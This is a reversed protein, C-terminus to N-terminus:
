TPTGLWEHMLKASEVYGEMINALIIEEAKRGFMPFDIHLSGSFTRRVRSPGLPEVKFVGSMKFREPMLSPEIRVDMINSRKDLTSTETYGLNGGVIKKAFSPLDREPSYQCVFHLTEDTENWVLMRRDKVHIRRYLERNYDESFLLKWFSAPDAAFEHIIEFPTM